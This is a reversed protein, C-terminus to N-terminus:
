QGQSQTVAFSSLIQDLAAIASEPLTEAEADQIVRVSSDALTISLILDASKGTTSVAIAKTGGDDAWVHKHTEEGLLTVQDGLSAEGYGLGGPVISGGWAIQAPDSKRQYQVVIAFKGQRVTVADALKVGDEVTEGAIEEVTWSAPYQFSFGYSASEYTLTDPGFSKLEGTCHLSNLIAEMASQASEPIDVAEYATEAGADCGLQVYLELDDFRDGLFVSKVKGEHVLVQRPIQRGLVMVTGREEIEGAPRGGPGLVAPEGLRKFQIELRLSDSTLHIANASTGGPVDQGAPIQELEWSPPYIFTFQYEDNVYIIQNNEADPAAGQELGPAPTVTPTQPRGTAEIRQFSALIETAQARLDGPIDLENYGASDVDEVWISFALDDVEVLGTEGYLVMKDKREYTLVHAPITRELFSIKGGYILDGAPLGTRGGMPRFGPNSAWGYAIRLVLTGQSLEVLHPEDALTWTEPYRFTFGYEDNVYSRVVPTPLPTPTPTPEIGVVLTQPGCATLALALV